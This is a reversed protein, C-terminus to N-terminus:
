TAVAPQPQAPKVGVLLETSDARPRQANSWAVVLHMCMDHIYVAGVSQDGGVRHSM